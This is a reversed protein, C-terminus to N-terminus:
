CRHGGSVSARRSTPTTAGSATGSVSLPPRTTGPAPTGGGRGDATTGAGTVLDNSHSWFSVMQKRNTGSRRPTPDLTRGTLGRGIPCGWTTKIFM